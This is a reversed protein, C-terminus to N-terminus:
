KIWDCYNCTVYRKFDSYKFNKDVRKEMELDIKRLWKNTKSNMWVDSPNIVYGDLNIEKKILMDLAYATFYGFEKYDKRTTIEMLNVIEQKPLNMQRKFKETLLKKPYKRNELINERTRRISDIRSKLRREKRKQEEDAIYEPTIRIIEQTTNWSNDLKVKDDWRGDHEPVVYLVTKMEDAVEKLYDGDFALDLDGWWIKIFQDDEKKFINGNFFIQPNYPHAERYRCKSSTIMRGQNYKIMKLSRKKKIKIKDSNYFFVVKWNFIEEM